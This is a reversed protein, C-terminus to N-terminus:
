RGQHRARMRAVAEGVPGDAMAEWFGINELLAVAFYTGGLATLVAAPSIVLAAVALLAAVLPRTPRPFPRLLMPIKPFRFQSVMLAALILTLAAVAHPTWFTPYFLFTALSMGGMTIPLGQFFPGRESAAFRALRWAGCVVYGGAVLVGFVPWRHLFVTYVLLAPAVGFSIIDALADLSEGFPNSGRMRRAIVGDLVDLVGALFILAAATTFHHDMALMIAAVGCLLNGFTIVNPIQQCGQRVKGRLRM